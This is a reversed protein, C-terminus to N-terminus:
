HSSAAPSFLLSHLLFPNKRVYIRFAESSWRGAAQIILPSAGMEALMTAGGARLSQGAVAAPFFSRLRSIFFTRTPVTGASTLWLPSALPFKADRSDLYRQFHLLTPCSFKEGSVLIRSGEFTRDAKHSPLIFEYRDAHMEVTSRRSIKRWDRITRNDPFVLEGIRLLAFFAMLFMSLFLKDDHHISDAFHHLVQDVTVHPRTKTTSSQWLAQPM